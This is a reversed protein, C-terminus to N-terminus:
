LILLRTMRRCDSDNMTGSARSIASTNVNAAKPVLVVVPAPEVGVLAGVLAGVLPAVVAGPLVVFPHGVLATTFGGCFVGLTVNCMPLLLLVAIACM